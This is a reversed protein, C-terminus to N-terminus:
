AGELMHFAIMEYCVDVYSWFKFKYTEDERKLVEGERSEVEAKSIDLHKRLDVQYVADLIGEKEGTIGFWLGTAFFFGQEKKKVFKM